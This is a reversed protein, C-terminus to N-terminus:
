HISRPPLAARARQWAYYGSLLLGLPWFFSMLPLWVLKIMISPPEEGMLLWGLALGSLYLYLGAALYGIM